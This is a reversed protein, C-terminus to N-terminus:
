AEVEKTRFNREQEDSTNTYIGEIRHPPLYDAEYNAEQIGLVWGSSLIKIQTYRRVSDEGDTLRVEGGHRIEHTM